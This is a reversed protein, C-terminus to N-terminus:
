LKKKKKITVNELLAPIPLENAIYCYKIKNKFNESM